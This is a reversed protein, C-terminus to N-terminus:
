EQSMVSRSVGVDSAFEGRDETGIYGAVRKDLPHPLSGPAGLRSSISGAIATCRRGRQYQPQAEPIAERRMSRPSRLMDEGGITRPRYLRRM